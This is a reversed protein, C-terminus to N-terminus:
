LNAACEAGFYNVKNRWAFITTVLNNLVKSLLLMALRRTFRTVRAVHLKPRFNGHCTDSALQRRGNAVHSTSGQHSFPGLSRHLMVRPSGARLWLAARELM